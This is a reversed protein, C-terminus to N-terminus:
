ISYMMKVHEMDLKPDQIFFMYDINPKYDVRGSKTYIYYTDTNNVFDDIYEINTFMTLDYLTLITYLINSSTIVNIINNLEDPPLSSLYDLAPKSIGYIGDYSLLTNLIYQNM